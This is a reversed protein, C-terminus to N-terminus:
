RCETMTWSRWPISRTQFRDSSQAVNESVMRPVKMVRDPTSSDTWVKVSDPMPGRRSPNKPSTTTVVTPRMAQRPSSNRVAPEISEGTERVPANRNLLRSNPANAKTTSSPVTNGRSTSAALPSRIETPLGYKSRMVMGIPNARRKRIATAGTRGHPRAVATSSAVRRRQGATTLAADISSATTTPLRPHAGVKATPRAPNEIPPAARWSQIATRARPRRPRTPRELPPMTTWTPTATTATASAQEEAKTLCASNRNSRGPSRAEKAPCSSTKSPRVVTSRGSFVSIRTETRTSPCGYRGAMLMNGKAPWVMPVGAVRDVRLSSRCSATSATGSSPDVVVTRRTM